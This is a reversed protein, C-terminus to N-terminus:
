PHPDHPLDPGRMAERRGAMAWRSPSSRTSSAENAGSSPRRLTAIAGVIVALEEDTPEPQVSIRISPENPLAVQDGSM